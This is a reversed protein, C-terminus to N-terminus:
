RRSSGTRAASSTVGAISRTGDRRSGRFEEDRVTDLDRVGTTESAGKLSLIRTEPNAPVPVISIEFLDIGLLERIGDERDRSKTVLYGFSLSVANNRMSRWAERAVDSDELDLEGKVYLGEKAERLSGADIWGIVNAAEGGHNWHLPLRKGSQQWRRITEAFAGKVIQDGERDIGWTAAIASFRGQDTATSAAKITMHQM